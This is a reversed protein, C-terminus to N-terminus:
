KLESSILFTISYIDKLEEKNWSKVLKKFAIMVKDKLEEKNWSTVNHM